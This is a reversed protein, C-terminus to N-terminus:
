ARGDACDGIADRYRWDLNLLAGPEEDNSPWAPCLHGSLEACTVEWETWTNENRVWYDGGAYPRPTTLPQAASWAPALLLFSLLMRKM